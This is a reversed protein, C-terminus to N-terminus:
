SGKGSHAKSLALEFSIFFRFSTSTARTPAFLLMGDNATFLGTAGVCSLFIVTQLNADFRGVRL